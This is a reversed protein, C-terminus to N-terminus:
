AFFLGNIAKSSRRMGDGDGDETKRREDEGNKGENFTDGRLSM